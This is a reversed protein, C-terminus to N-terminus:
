FTEISDDQTLDPGNSQFGDPKVEETNNEAPAEVTESVPEEKTEVPNNVPDPLTIVYDGKEEDKRVISTPIYKTEKIPKGDKDFKGTPEIVKKVLDESQLGTMAIIGHEMGEIQEKLSKYEKALGDIQEKLRNKKVVLPNVAKAVLKISRFSSVSIRKEM